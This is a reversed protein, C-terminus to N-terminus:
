RHLNKPDNPDMPNHHPWIEAREKKGFIACFYAEHWLHETSNAVLSAYLQETDWNGKYKHEITKAAYYLDLYDLNHKMSEEYIHLEHSTM